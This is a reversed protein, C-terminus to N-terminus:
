ALKALTTGVAYVWHMAVEQNALSNAAKIELVEKILEEKDEFTILGKEFDEKIGILERALDGVASIDNQYQYLEDLTTM